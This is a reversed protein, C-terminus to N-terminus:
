VGCKPDLLSTYLIELYEPGAADKPFTQNDIQRQPSFKKEVYVM